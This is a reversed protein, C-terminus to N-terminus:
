EYHQRFGASNAGARARVRVRGQGEGLHHALLGRAGDHGRQEDVVDAAGLRAQERKNKNERAATDGSHGAPMAGPTLTVHPTRVLEEGLGHTNSCITAAAELRRTGGTGCQGGVRGATGSRM